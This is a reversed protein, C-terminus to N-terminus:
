QPALKWDLWECLARGMVLEKDAGSLWGLEETFLTICEKWSCPMRTIDTGWFVRQPGFADYIQRLREHIDRYPYAERSYSPAGTAKVAVNAYKALALMEPLNAWAEEVKGEALFGLTSRPRGLHDILLRLAPYRAAVEGVKLLDDGCNLAIPLGASDAAPWLWDITGDTLWAAQGPGSFAFRLGLMGPRQKWGAVLERSEPRDVPFHGLIGLRDPHQRAADIAIENAKPEWSTPPHILAADVGAADMEKLLEDKTFADVQRHNPNTPKGNSWIHVQADVIMM